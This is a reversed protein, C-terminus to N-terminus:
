PRPPSSPCPERLRGSPADAARREPPSWRTADAASPWRSGSTPSRSSRRSRPCTRVSRRAGLRCRRRATRDGDVGPVHADELERRIEEAVRQAEDLSAGDLVALFEEGGFRAVLDSSRLRRTLISGFARLVADGPRRARPAQQVSGFHDLDFMIAAVPHRLEPDFRARAAFLREVSGGRPPAPEMPRHAPRPHRCRGDACPARRQQAVARDAVRHAADGRARAPSRGISTAVASRSPARDRCRRRQLLPMAAATLSTRSGRARLTEPFGDRPCRRATVIRGEAIASAPVATVRRSARGSMRARRWRADGRDPGRRDGPRAPDPDDIDVELMDAVSGIIADYATAPELSANIASGFAALRAFLAARDSCRRRTRAGARPGGRRPRRRRMM